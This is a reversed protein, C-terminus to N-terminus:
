LESLVLYKNIALLKNLLLTILKLEVPCNMIKKNDKGADVIIINYNVDCNIAGYGLPLPSTQLVKM